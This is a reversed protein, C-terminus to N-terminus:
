TSTWVTFGLTCQVFPPCFPVRKAEMSNHPDMSINVMYGLLKELVYPLHVSCVCHFSGSVPDYPIHLGDSCASVSQSCLPYILGRTIGYLIYLSDKWHCTAKPHDQYYLLCNSPYCKDWKYVKNTCFVHVWVYVINCKKTSRVLGHM